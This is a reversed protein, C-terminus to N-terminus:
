FTGTAGLTGVSLFPQVTVTSTQAASHATRETAQSKGPWLLAAALAGVGLAAGGYFLVSSATRLSDHSDRAISRQQAPLAADRAADEKGSAVPILVASVGLAIVSAAGLGIVTATKATPWGSGTSEAPKAPEAAGGGMGAPAGPAGPTAAASGAGGASAAAPPTSAVSKGVAVEIAKGADGGTV